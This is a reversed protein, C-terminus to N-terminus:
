TLLAWDATSTQDYRQPDFGEGIEYRAVRAHATYHGTRYGLLFHLTGAAVFRRARFNYVCHAATLVKDRAVMVASCSAGTENTLKGIASWPYRSQDVDDRHSLAAGGAAAHGAVPLAVVFALLLLARSRAGVM